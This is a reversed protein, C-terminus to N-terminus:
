TALDTIHRLTTAGRLYPTEKVKWAVYTKAEITPNNKSEM